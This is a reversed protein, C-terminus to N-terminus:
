RTAEEVATFIHPYTGCRCLNGALGERVQAGTPKGHEEILATCAMVMGPTCFGCMLADHAVFAAQLKTLQEPTGLGEITLVERGEVDHALMM